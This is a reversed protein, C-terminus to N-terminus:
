MCRCCCCCCCCCCCKLWCPAYRLVVWSLGDAPLPAPSQVCCHMSHHNTDALVTHRCRIHGYTHHNGQSFLTHVDHIRIFTHNQGVRTITTTFTCAQICAVITSTVACQLAHRSPALLCIGPHMGRHQQHDCVATCATITSTFMHRSAHWSTAPSQVSCHM